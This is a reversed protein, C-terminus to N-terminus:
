SYTYSARNNWILNTAPVSGSVSGWAFTIPNNNADYTIQKIAWGAQSQITGPTCYGLYITTNGAGSNDAAYLIYSAPLGLPIGTNNIIGYAGVLTAM